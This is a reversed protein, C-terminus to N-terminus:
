LGLGAVRNLFDVAIPGAVSGGSGGDEVLVAFALDNQYGVFWAHTRPPVESGFEATGTKAHVPGGQAGNAVQGTGSSVVFRMMDRVSQVAGPDLAQGGETVATPDGVLVPPQYTGSAATAAMVAMSVPSVLVRGQGFSTAAKDTAGSPNPVAGGFSPTGLNYSDGIGFQLAAAPFVSGDILQGLNIFSTNCSQAFAWWLDISGLQQGQYNGFEKGDVVMTQPCELIQKPDVGNTLGAYATVIKFISGPPYSGSLARNEVAAGPGNAVALIQGTSAQIAVLSSIPQVSALADEAATQIRHDLTTQVPSAEAPPEYFLIDPDDPRPAGANAQGEPQGESNSGDTDTDTDTTVVATPFRRDIRVQRGPLGALETNYTAQLGSLGVIDGQAFHDPSRELTEATAEGSRGLLARAFRDSPALPRTTETLVIGPIAELEARYPEVAEARQVTLPFAVDSPSRGVQDALRAADLGFRNALDQAVQQPDAALRPVIEVEVVPRAAVLGFGNRDLIAQREAVVREYVLEDSPTLSKELAGVDWDIQWESGVLVLDLEGATSFETGDELAWTLALAATGRASDVQEFGGPVVALEFPELAATAADFEAQVEDPQVFAYTVTPLQRQMLATSFSAVADLAAAEADFIAEASATLENDALDTDGDDTASGSGGLQSRFVVIGGLLLVGVAVLSLVLAKSGSWDAYVEDGPGPAGSTAAQRTSGAASPAPASSVARGWDGDRNALFDSDQENM